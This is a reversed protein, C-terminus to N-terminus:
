VIPSNRSKRQKLLKNGWKSSQGEGSGCVSQM